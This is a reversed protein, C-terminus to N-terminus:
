ATPRTQDSTRDYVYHFVQEQGRGMDLRTEVLMREGDSSLSYSQTVKGGDHVEREIQLAREQWRAKIDLKGHNEIELEVKKWNTVLDAPRERNSQVSVTSDHHEVVIRRPPPAAMRVTQMMRERNMQDPPAGRMGGRGGMGGPMRGGGGMGGTPRGGGMGGPRGGMTGSVMGDELRMDGPDDSLDTNLVWSGSLDLNEPALTTGPSSACALALGTCVCIAAASVTSQWM